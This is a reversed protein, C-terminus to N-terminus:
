LVSRLLDVALVTKGNLQSPLNLLRIRSTVLILGSIRDHKAYRFLQRTVSTLSRDIKVEVGIGDPLLFDIRDTPSLVAEREFAFKRMEFLQVLGEQLDLETTFAFRTNGIVDAVLRLYDAGQPLLSM